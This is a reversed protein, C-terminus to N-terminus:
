AQYNLRSLGDQGSDARENDVGLGFRTRAMWTGSIEIPDTELKDPLANAYRHREDGLSRRCLVLILLVENM